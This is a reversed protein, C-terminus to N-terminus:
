FKQNAASPNSFAAFKQSVSSKDAASMEAVGQAQQLIDKADDIRHQEAYLDALRLYPIAYAPAATIARKYAEEAGSLDKQSYLDDGSQRLSNAHEMPTLKSNDLGRSQSPDVGNRIQDVLNFALNEPTVGQLKAFDKDATIVYKDTSGKVAVVYQDKIQHVELNTWWMPDTSHAAELRKAVIQARKEVPMAATGDPIEVLAKPEPVDPNKLYVVGKTQGGPVTDQAAVFQIASSSVSQVATQVNTTAVKKAIDDFMSRTQVNPDMTPSDGPHLIANALKLETPTAKETHLIADALANKIGPLNRQSQADLTPAIKTLRDLAKQLNAQRDAATVFAAPSDAHTALAGGAIMALACCPLGTLRSIRYNM